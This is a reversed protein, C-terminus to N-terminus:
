LSTVEGSSGGGGGNEFERSQGNAHGNGNAAAVPNETVDSQELRKASSGALGRM